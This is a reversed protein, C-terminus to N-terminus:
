DRPGFSEALQHIGELIARTRPDANGPLPSLCRLTLEGGVESELVPVLRTASQLLSTDPDGLLIGVGDQAARHLLEGNYSCVIPEIAVTGGRLLPWRRPDSTAAKWSLTRHQVLDDPTSPRGHEALYSESALPVLRVRAIVRSFWAGHDVAGGFHFMLDFPEHLHALPDVHEVDEICLGPAIAHLARLLGIRLIDPVGVPAVLRVVGSLDARTSRAASVMQTFRELLGRGESLVVAGAPTLSVGVASRVFLESGVDAELAELKRRLSSRSMGTQRAASQISGLEVVKILLRVGELDM